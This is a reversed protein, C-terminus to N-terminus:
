RRIRLLRAKTTAPLDTAQIYVRARAPDRRMWSTGIQEYLAYRKAAESVSGAWAMAGAPDSQMVTRALTSVAPDLVPSPPNRALLWDAAAVPDQRAWAGTLSALRNAQDSNSPQLVLWDAAEAPNDYSWASVVRDLTTRREAPDNLQSAWSAIRNPDYRLLNDVIAASLVQRDQLSTASAHMQFLVEDQGSRVLRSVMSGLAAQKLASTPLNWVQSMAWGLDKDALQGFLKSTSGLMMTPDAKAAQVFWDLAGRPDQKAWAGLANQLAADRTRRSDLSMAYAIAGAPDQAGWESMLDLLKKEAVPGWPQAMIQALKDAISKGATEPESSGGLGGGSASPSARNTDTSVAARRAAAMAALAAANTGGAATVGRANEASSATLATNTTVLGPRPLVGASNSSANVAAALRELGPADDADVADDDDSRVLAGRGFGPSAADYGADGAGDGTILPLDRRMRLALVAVTVVLLLGLTLELRSAGSRRRGTRISTLRSMDGMIDSDRGPM